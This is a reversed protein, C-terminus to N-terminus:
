GLVASPESPIPIAVSAEQEKGWDALALVLRNLIPRTPDIYQPYHLPLDRNVEVTLPQKGRLDEPDFRSLSDIGTDSRNFRIVDCFDFAVDLDGARTELSKAIAIPLRCEVDCENEPNGLPDGAHGSM